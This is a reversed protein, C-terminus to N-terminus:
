SAPRYTIPVCLKWTLPISNRGLPWDDMQKSSLLMNGFEFNHSNLILLSINAKQLNPCYVEEYSKSSKTGSYMKTGYMSMKPVSTHVACVLYYKVPTYTSGFSYLKQEDSELYM